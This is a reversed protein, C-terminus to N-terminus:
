GAPRIMRSGIGPVRARSPERGHEDRLRRSRRNWEITGPPKHTLDLLVAAVGRVAGAVGGGHRRPSPTRSCSM